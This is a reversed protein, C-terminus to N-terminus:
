NGDCGDATKEGAGFTMGSSPGRAPRCAFAKGRLPDHSSAWLQESEQAAPVRPGLGNGLGLEEVGQLPKVEVPGVQGLCEREIVASIAADQDTALEVVLCGHEAPLAALGARDVVVGTRGASDPNHFSTRGLHTVRGARATAQHRPMRACVRGTGDQAAMFLADVLRGIQFGGPAVQDGQVDIRLRRGPPPQIGEVLGGQCIVIAQDTVTGLREKDVEAV